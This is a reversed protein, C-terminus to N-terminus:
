QRIVTQFAKLNAPEASPLDTFRKGTLYEHSFASMAEPLLFIAIFSAHVHDCIKNWKEVGSGFFLIENDSLQEEFSNKDLILTCPSLTTALQTNYIATFVEMRRADIMPCLLTPSALDRGKLHLLASRALLELTSLCILPKKLAYCIGKASAMSVRLGTYSGPGATVAVADLEQLAIAAEHVLESIATHLFAAHDKQSNNQRLVLVHGDRALSVQANETATDINLILSM